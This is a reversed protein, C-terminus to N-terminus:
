RKGKLFMAVALLKARAEPPLEGFLAALEVFRLRESNGLSDFVSLLSQYVALTANTRGTPPEDDDSWV